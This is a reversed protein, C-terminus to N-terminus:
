SSRAKAIAARAETLAFDLNNSRYPQQKHKGVGFPHDVCDFLDVLGVGNLNAGPKGHAAIADDDQQVLYKLAELMDPAASFLRAVDESMGFFVLGGAADRVSWLGPEGGSDDREVTWTHEASM